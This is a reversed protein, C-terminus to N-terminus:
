PQEKIDEDENVIYRPMGFADATTRNRQTAYARAQRETAFKGVIEGREGTPARLDIVNWVFDYRTWTPLAEWEDLTM